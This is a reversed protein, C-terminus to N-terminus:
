GNTKALHIGKWVRKKNFILLASDLSFEHRLCTANFLSWVRPHQRSLFIDPYFLVGFKKYMPDNEFIDIPDRVVYCDLDLFIVEAFTSSLIAGPKFAYVAEPFGKKRPAYLAEPFGKKRPAYLAGPFGKKRPAYVAEPFGKRRRAYVTEPFAKRRPAYVAEPFGKKLPAYVAEPVGKKLLAYEAEPVSKKRPAYVYSATLNIETGNSLYCQAAEFCCAKVNLTPVSNLLEIVANKDTQTSSYWIEVPLKTRSWEIIRLNFRTYPLHDRGTTLVIGRDKFIIILIRYM